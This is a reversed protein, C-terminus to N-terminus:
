NMEWAMLVKVSLHEYVLCKAMFIKILRVTLIYLAIYLAVTQRERLDNWTMWFQGSM